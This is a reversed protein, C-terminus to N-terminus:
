SCKVKASDFGLHMDTNCCCGQVAHCARVCATVSPAPVCLCACVCDPLLAPVFVPQNMSVAVHVPVSACDEPCVHICTTMHMFVGTDGLLQAIGSLAQECMHSGTHMDAKLIEEHVFSGTGRHFTLPLLDHM